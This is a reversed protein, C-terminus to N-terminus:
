THGGVGNNNLTIEIGRDTNHNNQVLEENDKHQSEIVVVLGSLMLISALLVKGLKSM